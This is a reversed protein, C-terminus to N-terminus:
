IKAGFALVKFYRAGWILFLLLWAFFSVDFLFDAGWGFAVNLSYLTRLIVVVQVFWFIKIALGDAHPPQGSHGLAVRTGFGILITTVFGIALLHIGLFQFNADLFLEAANTIASIFFAAPLWFLGLHLVWLIAPCTFIPLKWGLFERLLYSALLVDIAIQAITFDFAACITKLALSAFVIKVFNDSKQEYSHSFFPIMRQAVSFTLFVVYLYFGVNIAVNEVDLGLQAAVFLAHSLLGFYQAVLIWFPDEKAQAAGSKYISHLKLVTFVNSVFLGGMGILLLPHSLFSGITFVVSAIANAYFIKVYYSKEITPAQCFRTFTTFLFGTFLNAFAMFILSYAHFSLSDIQLHFVGKHSLAFVLMMVVANAIGLLFFPQHPQSLFYNSKQDRTKADM